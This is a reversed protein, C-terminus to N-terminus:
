ISGYNIEEEQTKIRDSKGHCPNYVEQKTQDITKRILMDIQSNASERPKKGKMTQQVNVRKSELWSDIEMKKFRILKGIRYHPIDPVMSYITKVKVNLYTSLNTIDWFCDNESESKKVSFLENQTRINM